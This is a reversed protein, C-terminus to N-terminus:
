GNALLSGGQERVAVSIPFIVSVSPDDNLKGRLIGVVRVGGRVGDAWVPGGSDGHDSPFRAYIRNYGPNAGIVNGCRRASAVGTACVRLPTSGLQISQMVEPMDVAGEVPLTGLISAAPDILPSPLPVFASDASDTDTSGSLKALPVLSGDDNKLSVTAGSSGCHGATIAGYVGNVVMYPGLTCIGGSGDAESIVIPDGPTVYTDAAAVPAACVSATVSFAAIVSVLHRTM